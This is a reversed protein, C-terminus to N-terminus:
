ENRPRPRKLRKLGRPAAPPSPSGGTSPVMHDVVLRLRGGAEKPFVLVGLYYRKPERCRESM